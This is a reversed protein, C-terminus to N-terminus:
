IQVSKVAENIVTIDINRQQRQAFEFADLFLQFMERVNGGKSAVHSALAKLASEEAIKRDYVEKLRAKLIEYLQIANYPKFGYLIPNLRSYLRKGIFRLNLESTSILILGFKPIKNLFRNLPYVPDDLM